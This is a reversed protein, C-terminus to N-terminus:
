AALEIDILLRVQAFSNFIVKEILFGLSIEMRWGVVRQSLPILEQGKPM